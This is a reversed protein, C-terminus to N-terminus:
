APSPASRRRAKPSSRARDRRHAAGGARGARDHGVLPGDPSLDGPDDHVDRRDGCGRDPRQRLDGARGRGGAGLPHEDAGCEAGDHRRQGADGHRGLDPGADPDRCQGRVSPDPRRPGPGARDQGRRGARAAGDDRGPSWPRVSCRWPRPWGASERRGAGYRLGPEHHRGGRPDADAPAPARAAPHHQARDAPLRAGLGRRYRGASGAGHLGALPVGRRHRRYLRRHSSSSAWPAFRTAVSVKPFVGERGPRSYEYELMATDSARLREIFARIIPVGNVVLDMQNKGIDKRNMAALPSSGDMTYIAIYNTGGSYRMTM